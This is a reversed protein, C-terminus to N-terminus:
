CSEYYDAIGGSDEPPCAGGGEVLRPLALPEDVPRISAARIDHTWSDGMDYVWELKMRPQHLVGGVTHRAEDECDWDDGYAAPAYRAKRTTYQHLHSTPGDWGMAWALTEALADLPMDSPVEILRWVAPDTYRLEVRM